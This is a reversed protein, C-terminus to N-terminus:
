SNLRTSMRGSIGLPARGHAHMLDDAVARLPPDRKVLDVPNQGCPGPKPADPRVSLVALCGLEAVPQALATQGPRGADQRRLLDVRGVHREATGFALCGSIPLADHLSLTYIETTATDNFFFGSM